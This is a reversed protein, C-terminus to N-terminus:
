IAASSTLPIEYQRRKPSFFNPNYKFRPDAEIEGRQPDAGVKFTKNFTLVGYRSQIAELAASLQPVENVNFLCVAKPNFEREDQGKCEMSLPDGTIFAKLSQIKDLKTLNTNESAWNVRSSATRALPFKRGKDYSAFDELTAGTLGQYGYLAAVAERLTDKGNNGDGKLLLARVTRGKHSRVTALDLSAAITRLFIERQPVDLCQLM